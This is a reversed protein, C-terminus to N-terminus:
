GYGLQHLTDDDIGFHHAIEHVVTIEVQRVVDATETCIALTSNMYVSIRDPLAGAYTAGRDTLPIGEYVGLLDPPQDAPPDDVVFVAVNDMAAALTPPIRDLATSVLGEFEDRSMQLVSGDQQRAM